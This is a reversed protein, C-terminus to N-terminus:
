LLNIVAGSGVTPTGKCETVANDLLRVDSSPSVPM